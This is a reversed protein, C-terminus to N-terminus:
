QDFLKDVNLLLKNVEDSLIKIDNKNKIISSITFENKEFYESSKINLIKFNFSNIIKNHNLFRNFYAPNIISEIINSIKIEKQSGSIKPDFFFNEEEKLKNFFLVFKNLDKIRYLEFIFRRFRNKNFQCIIAYKFIDNLKEDFNYEKILNQLESILSFDAEISILFILFERSIINSNFLISYFYYEDKFYEIINSYIENLKYLLFLLIAPKKVIFENFFTLLFIFSFLCYLIKKNKQDINEFLIKISIKLIKKIEDNYKNIEIKPLIDPNYDIIFFFDSDIRNRQDKPLDNFLDKHLLIPILGYDKTNLLFSYEPTIQKKDLKLDFLIGFSKNIDDTKINQINIQM